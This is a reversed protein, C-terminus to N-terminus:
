KNMAWRVLCVFASGKVSVLSFGANAKMQIKITGRHLRDLVSEGVAVGIWGREVCDEGSRKAIARRNRSRDMARPSRRLDLALTQRQAALFKGNGTTSNTKSSDLKRNTTRCQLLLLVVVVVLLKSCLVMFGLLHSIVPKRGHKQM